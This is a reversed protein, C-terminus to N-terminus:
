LFYIYYKISFLLFFKNLVLLIILKQKYNSIFKNKVGM